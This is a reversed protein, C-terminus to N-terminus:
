KLRGKQNCIPKMKLTENIIFALGVHIPIDKRARLITGNCVGAKRALPVIQWGTEEMRAKLNPVRAMQHQANGGKNKM